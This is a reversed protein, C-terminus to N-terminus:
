ESHSRDKTDSFGSTDRLSREKVCQELKERLRLARNRLSNLSIGMKEALRQRNRIRQQADGQYYHLILERNEASLAKLCEELIAVTEEPPPIEHSSSQDRAELLTMERQYFRWAELLVIRATATVFAPINKIEEGAGIRSAVRDFVTDAWHDPNPCREWTFFRILRARLHEYQEGAAAPDDGLAALFRSFQDRDPLTSLAM